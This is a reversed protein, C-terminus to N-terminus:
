VDTQSLGVDPGLQSPLFIEGGQLRCSMDGATVPPSCCHQSEYNEGVQGGLGAWGPRLRQLVGAMHHPSHASPEVLM